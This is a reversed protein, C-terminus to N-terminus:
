EIVNDLGGSAIDRLAEDIAQALIFNIEEISTESALVPALRDPLVLLGEKVKMGLEEAATEVAKRDVLNGALQEYKLRASQAELATKATRAKTLSMNANVGPAETTESYSSDPESDVGGDIAQDALRKNIKKRNNSGEKICGELKGEKIWDKVTSLNVGRHKAYASPGIWEDKDKSM